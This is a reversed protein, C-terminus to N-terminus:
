HSTIFTFSGTDNTSITFLIFEDCDMCPLCLVFYNADCDGLPGAASWVRQITGNLLKWSLEGGTEAARQLRFISMPTSVLSLSATSVNDGNGLCHNGFMTTHDKLMINGSVLINDDYKFYLKGDHKVTEAIDNAM